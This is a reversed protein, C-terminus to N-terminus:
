STMLSDSSPLRINTSRSSLRIPGNQRRNSIPFSGNKLLLCIPLRKRNRITAQDRTLIRCRGRKNAYPQRVLGTNELLDLKQVTDLGAIRAWFTPLGIGPYSIFEAVVPVTPGILILWVAM